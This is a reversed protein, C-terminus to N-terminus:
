KIEAVDAMIDEPKLEGDDKLEEYKRMQNMWFDIDEPILQANETYKHQGILEKPIEIESAMIKASEEPHEYIYKISRNYAKLFNRVVEPNEQLFKETFFIASFQNNDLIEYANFLKKVGGSYEAHISYPDIVGIVDVEEQRLAQEQNHHPILVLEVSEKNIGNKELYMLFTYYFSGAFSNVAVKKGKLDEPKKIDSDELIYWRMLQGDKFETQSDAVAKIKINSHVANIIGSLASHGADLDNSAAAQVIAPGSTFTGTFELNIGEEEFFGLNKGIFVPNYNKFLGWRITVLDNSNNNEDKDKMINISWAGIIMVLILIVIYGKFKM